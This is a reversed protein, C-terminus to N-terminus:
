YRASNITGPPFRASSPVPANAAKSELDSAASRQLLGVGLAALIGVAIAIAIMQSLRRRVRLGYRTHPDSEHFGEVFTELGPLKLRM